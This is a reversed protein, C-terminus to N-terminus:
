DRQCANLVTGTLGVTETFVTSSVLTASDLEVPAPSWPLEIVFRTPGAPRIPDYRVEGGQLQGLRWATPLGLGRGRGASRGSYFPDFLHPCQMEDPGHGSDEIEIQVRDAAPAKLIMRAWGEAPAAEVGNRLLHTLATKVQERDAYVRVKGPGPHVELRVHRQEALENLATATETMLEALDFWAPKPTAPRAFQMLDRLLSHIRKTQTIIAQLSKRPGDVGDATFWKAAHGLIYQAQGSIVALPNNIEHGAGAAFEAMAALKSTRLAEAAEAMQSVLAAHLEDAEGEIRRRLSAERLRRNEAALVLLDRLLPVQCPDQWPSSTKCEPIEIRNVDEPLLDLAATDEAVQGTTERLAFGRESALGVALRTLRFLTVDAGLEAATAPSLALQGVISTLWNPLEWRRAMRRALASADIGWHRRQCETSDTALAPDALCAASAATDLACAVYWGLPALFGCIWAKELDVGGIKTGIATTISACAYGAQQIKAIAPAHWDVASPANGNLHRLVDALLAPSELRECISNGPQRLLLLLAGPDARFIPWHDLTPSKAFATLSAVGPCFWTLRDLAAALDVSAHASCSREASERVAHVGEM